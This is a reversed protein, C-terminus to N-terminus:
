RRRRPTAALALGVLDDGPTSVLSMVTTRGARRWSVIARDGDDSRALLVGERRVRRSGPPPPLPQGSLVTLALRRGDRGTYFATVADRDGVRDRRGGTLAWGRADLRPFRQGAVEPPSGTVPLTAELDHLDAAAAVLRDDPVGSRAAFLAAAVLAVAIVVLGLVRALRVRGPGAPVRAAPRDAGGGAVQTVDPSVRASALM